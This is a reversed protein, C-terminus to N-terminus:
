KKKIPVTPVKQGKFEPICDDCYPSIWGTTMVTAPKGCIICTRKSIEEYKEIISEVEDTYGNDYWRLMGYKEKIQVIMYQDTLGAHDLATKLEACMQEGFAKRWGDPMDDLETYEWDFDPVKDPEGPWFGAGDTIRRGSWKNRPILFPYKECLEKNYEKSYRM